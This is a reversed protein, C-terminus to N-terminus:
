NEWIIEMGGKEDKANKRLSWFGSKWYFKAVMEKGTLWM